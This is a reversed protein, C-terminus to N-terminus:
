EGADCVAAAKWVAEPQRRVSDRVGKSVMCLTGLDRLGLRQLICLWIDTSLAELTVRM